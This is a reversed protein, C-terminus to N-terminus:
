LDYGDTKTNEIYPLCATKLCFLVIGASYIDSAFPKVLENKSLEPSRYNSTGLGKSTSEKSTIAFDFDIIKINSDEGIVM